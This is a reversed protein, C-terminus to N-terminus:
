RRFKPRLNTFLNQLAYAFFCLPLSSRPVTQFLVAVPLPALPRNRDDPWERLIAELRALFIGASAADEKAYVLTKSGPRTQQRAEPCETPKRAGWSIQTLPATSAGPYDISNRSTVARLVQM